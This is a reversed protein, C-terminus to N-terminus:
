KERSNQPDSGEYQRVLKSGVDPVVSPLWKAYTKLTMWTDAHGMYTSVWGLPEGASLAVSAFTHRLQYPGRRKRVKAAVCDRHFLKRVARDNVFGDGTGPDPFIVTGKKRKMSALLDRAPPLLVLTRTSAETKTVKERGLRVSRWIRLTTCDPAVDDWRVAIIEGTRLGTLAWFAWLQGCATERLAKVEEPTLPDVKTDSPAASKTSVRRGLRYDALPNGPIVDDAAARRLAGRIPILLNNLRKRSLSLTAIWDRVHKERLEAIPAKGFSTEAVIAAYERYDVLTEPQVDHVISDLYATMHDALSRKAEPPRSDFAQARPSEPFHKAYDFTGTTIEHEIRAKLNAAFKLNARSPELRLWERCRVGRYRFDLQISQKGVARVGPGRGM